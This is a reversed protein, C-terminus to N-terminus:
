AQTGVLNGNNGRVMVKGDTLLLATKAGFRPPNNLPLWYKTLCYGALGHRLITLTRLRKM